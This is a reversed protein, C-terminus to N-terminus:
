YRIAGAFIFLVPWHADETPPSMPNVQVTFPVRGTAHEFQGTGGVIIMEGQQVILPPPPTVTKATYTAHIQDGNAVTFIAVGALALSGDSSACHSGAFTTNGLLTNGNANSLTQVPQDPCVGPNGWTVEGLASGWFPRLQQKQQHRQASATVAALTLLAFLALQTIRGLKM